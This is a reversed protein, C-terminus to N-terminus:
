GPPAPWPAAAEPAMPACPAGEVVKPQLAPPPDPLPEFFVPVLGEAIHRKGGKEREAMDRDDYAIQVNTHGTQLGHVVAKGEANIEVVCVSSDECRAAVVPAYHPAHSATPAGKSTDDFRPAITLCMNVNTRQEQEPLHAPWKARAGCASVLVAFAFIVSKNM